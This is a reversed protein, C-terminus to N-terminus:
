RPNTLLMVFAPPNLTFPIMAIFPAACSWLLMASITQELATLPKDQGNTYPSRM